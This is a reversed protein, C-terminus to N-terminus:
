VKEIFLLFVSHTHFFSVADLQVVHQLLQVWFVPHDCWHQASGDILHSDGLVFLILCLTARNIILVRWCIWLNPERKRFSIKKQKVHVLYIHICTAFFYHRNQLICYLLTLLQTSFVRGFTQYYISFADLRVM